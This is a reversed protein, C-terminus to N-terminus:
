GSYSPGSFVCSIDLSLRFGDQLLLCIPVADATLVLFSSAASAPTWVPPHPLSGRLQPPLGSKHGERKENVKEILKGKNKEPHKCWLTSGTGAGDERRLYSCYSHSWTAISQMRQPQPIYLTNMCPTPCTYQHIVLFSNDTELKNWQLM